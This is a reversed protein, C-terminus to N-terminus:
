NIWTEEGLLNGCNKCNYRITKRLEEYVPPKRNFNAKDILVYEEKKFNAEDCKECRIFDERMMM